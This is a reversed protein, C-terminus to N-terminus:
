VWHRLLARLLDRRSIIGVLHNRLLVPFRKFPREQFKKAVDFISDESFVSEVEPTMYDRVKGGKEAYYSAQYADRLCDRESIIGVLSGSQDVVPLASLGHVVLLRVAELLDADPAITVVNRSMYDKVRTLKM